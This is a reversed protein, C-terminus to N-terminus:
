CVLKQAMRCLCRLFVVWCRYNVIGVKASHQKRQSTGYAPLKIADCM